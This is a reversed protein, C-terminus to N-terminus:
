RDPSATSRKTIRGRKDAPSDYSYVFEDAGVQYDLRRDELSQGVARYQVSRATRPRGLDDRTRVLHGDATFGDPADPNAARHRQWGVMTGAADYEYVDRWQKPVDVLPDVYNTDNYTVSLLRGTGDYERQENDLYFCSVFGPASFYEGNNVFVGIDVRNSEITGPTGVARRPHWGINLEVVSSDPKLPRVKIRDPDGRLIRWEYKLSRGNLDRSPAASVVIRRSFNVTRHVRAIACPSDFLTESELNHFYDRGVRARDETVVKLRVLPPEAGARIDHAMEIMKLANLQDGLFASPHARGTLYDQDTQINSYNRRLIMQLTPVLAHDRILRQKVEPRFAALTAALAELFPQDTYSSGQSIVVYPTNAIFVDGWGGPGNHGVDHDRHEPYVYIQSNAFQAYLFQVVLPNCYALRPQSRWIAGSTVATSSNGLVPGGRFLFHRQLGRNLGRSVVASDYVIRTLQPYKALDLPSHDEDFNDYFDGHNGAATGAQFWLNLQKAVPSQQSAVQDAAAKDAVQLFPVFVGLQSSWDTNGEGVTVRGDQPLAPKPNWRWVEGRAANGNGSVLLEAFRPNDALPALQPDRRLAQPNKVGLRLLAAISELAADIRGLQAQCRALALYSEQDFPILTVAEAARQEAVALDGRAVAVQMARLLSARRSLIAPMDFVNPAAAFLPPVLLLM